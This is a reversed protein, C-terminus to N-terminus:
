SVLHRQPLLGRGGRRDMRRRGREGTRHARVAGGLRDFFTSLTKTDRGPAAWVLRRRKHDVVVTLDNQGKRSSIEDIGIERLGACRDMLTEAEAAVRSIIGGVTRWVVRMLSSVTSRTSHTTLWATQDDFARTCRADHRAWPVAAVVVGHAGCHM